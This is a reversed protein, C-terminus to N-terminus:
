HSCKYELYIEWNAPSCTNATGAGNTLVSAGYNTAFCIAGGPYSGIPWHTSNGPPCGQSTIYGFQAASSATPKIVSTYGLQGGACNIDSAPNRFLLVQAPGGAVRVYSSGGIPCAGTPPTLTTYGPGAIGYYGPATRWTPSAPPPACTGASTPSAPGTCINGPTCQNDTM